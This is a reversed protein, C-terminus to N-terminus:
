TFLHYRFTTDLMHWLKLGAEGIELTPAVESIGLKSDELTACGNTQTSVGVGGDQM